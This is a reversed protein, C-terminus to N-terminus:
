AVFDQGAAFGEDYGDSKGEEYACDRQEKVANEVDLLIINVMAKVNETREAVPLGIMYDHATKM